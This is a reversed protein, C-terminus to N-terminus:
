DNYELKRRNKRNVLIFLIISLVFFFLTTSILFYQGKWKSFISDNLLFLPLSCFVFIPFIYAWIKKKQGTLGLLEIIIFLIFGIRIFAGTLWQYISFFDIHNIFSGITAIRWEEYAPYRQKAAEAPGFEAIAGVLPGLTLGLLLFLMILLHTLKLKTKFHHQIFVLLYLEVFGSAPYLMSIFVPKVGHEFFPLLLAYDKVQINVFAIFFGLVVVVLLVVVNVMTITMISSAALLFCVVAFFSFLLLPPTQILFTTSVWQLTEHMTVVAMLILYFAIIYILVNGLKPYNNQLYMRLSEDKIKKVTLLPLILWPIIPLVSFIVSFWADRGAGNLLSPIITVHNKLGIFTMTLFIIHLLSISGVSKM